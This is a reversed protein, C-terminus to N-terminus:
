KKLVERVKDGFKSQQRLFYNELETHYTKPVSNQVSDRELLAESWALIKPTDDFFGYDYYKKVGQHYRFIPAYVADIISFKEGNFYPGEGLYEEITDFRETITAVNQKFAIDDATTYFSYTHSLIDNGFEIWARNQAKIFPDLPYLSGPTIEDLYECIAMSEFLPNDDVLLVPVKELPSIDLFWPPPNDLDIYTIEYPIDKELLVILSRQVYPCLTFSVLKLKPLSM